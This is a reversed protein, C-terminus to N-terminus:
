SYMWWIMVLAWVVALVFFTFITVAPINVRNPTRVWKLHRAIKRVAYWDQQDGRRILDGDRLMGSRWMDEVKAFTFPGRQNGANYIWYTTEM